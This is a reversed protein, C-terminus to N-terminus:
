LKPKTNEDFAWWLGVLLPHFNNEKMETFADLRTWGQSKVRWLAIVVGTRDEGHWCHIDTGSESIACIAMLLKLDPVGFLQEGTSIPITFLEINYRACMRREWDMREYNLKVITHVSHNTLTVFDAETQPQNSRWVGPAVRKM